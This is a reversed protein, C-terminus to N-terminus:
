KRMNAKRYESPTYGTEEKFLTLYTKGRYDVGCAEFAQEISIDGDLLKEKLKEIKIRQYFGKPTDGVIEKFIRHFHRQSLNVLRAVEDVNLEERWHTEIYERAKAMDTRGKYINNVQFFCITCVFTDGDWIPLCFLDMTAAEYPQKDGMVGRDVLDQIPAPFGSYSWTEGRFVKDLNEQGLIEVMLPDKYVNYKGVVMNADPINNIEMIARNVYICMGDPAFIETPTPHLDLLQYVLERNGILAKFPESLEEFRRLDSM